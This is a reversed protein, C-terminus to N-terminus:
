QSQDRILIEGKGVTNMDGVYRRFVAEGDGNGGGLDGEGLLGWARLRRLFVDLYVPRYTCAYRFTPLLVPAEGFVVVTGRKMGAGAGRGARGGVLVTGAIMGAGTFDGADGLVVLLGRRMRGGAEKGASGRVVITGGRAGRVEGSYAGGVYHGAAGEVVIRGGSIQAGLWDGADGRVLIEGGKMFAGLHQGASGEVVIRGRTMGYGIKKVASLDGRVTISEGGTGEIHFLDGLTVKRRGYFAPLAAIEPAELGFFRDPSISDAEVPITGPEKLELTVAAGDVLSGACSVCGMVAEKGDEDVRAAAHGTM